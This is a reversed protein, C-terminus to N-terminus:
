NVTIKGVILAWAGGFVTIATAVRIANEWWTKASGRKAEEHYTEVKEELARLESRTAMLSLDGKTAMQSVSSQLTKIADLVHRMETKLSAITEIEEREM